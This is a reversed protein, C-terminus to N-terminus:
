IQKCAFGIGADQLEPLITERIAELAMEGAKQTQEPSTSHVGLILTDNEYYVLWAAVGLRVTRLRDTLKQHLVKLKPM